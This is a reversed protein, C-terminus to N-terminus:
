AQVQHEIIEDGARKALLMNGHKAIPRGPPGQDIHGVHGSSDVPRYLALRFLTSAYEIDIGARVLAVMLYPIQRRRNGLCDGTGGQTDIGLCRRVATGVLHIEAQKGPQCGVM